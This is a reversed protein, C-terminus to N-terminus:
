RRILRRRSSCGSSNCNKSLLGAKDKSGCTSCDAKSSSCTGTACSSAGATANCVGNACEAGAIAQGLGLALIFSLM